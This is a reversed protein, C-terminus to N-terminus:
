RLSKKSTASKKENGEQINSFDLSTPAKMTAMKKVKKPRTTKQPVNTSPSQNMDLTTAGPAKKKKLSKRPSSTQPGDITKANNTENSIRRKKTGLSKKTAPSSEDITSTKLSTKKTTRKKTPLNGSPSSSIGGDMTLATKAAGKGKARRTTKPSPTQTTLLELPALGSNDTTKPGQGRRTAPRRTTKPKNTTLVLEEISMLGNDVSKSRQNRKTTPKTGLKATDSLDVSKGGGGRRGRTKKSPTLGEDATVAGPTGSKKSKKALKGRRKKPTPNVEDLTNTKTAPEVTNARKKGKKCKKGTKKVAPTSDGGANASVEVTAARKGKRGKRLPKKKMAVLEEISALKEEQPEEKISVKDLEPAPPLDQKQPSEQSLYPDMPPNTNTQPVDGIQKADAIMSNINASSTVNNNSEFADPNFAEVDDFGGFANNGGSNNRHRMKVANMNEIIASDDNQQKFVNILASSLTWGAISSFKYSNDDFIARINNSFQGFNDSIIDLIKELAKDLDEVEPASYRANNPMDSIQFMFKELAPLIHFEIREDLFAFEPMKDKMLQFKATNAIMRILKNMTEQHSIDTNQDFSYPNDLAELLYLEFFLRTLYGMVIKKENFCVTAFTRIVNALHSFQASVHAASSLIYKFITSFVKEILQKDMTDPNFDIKGKSNIYRVIKSIVHKFYQRGTKQIVKKALYTIAADENLPNKPDVDPNDFENAALSKLFVIYNGAYTFITYFAELADKQQKIPKGPPILARLISADPTITSSYLAIKLPKPYPLHGKSLYFPFETQHTKGKTSIIAKWFGLHESDEPKFSLVEVDTADYCVVKGDKEDVTITAIFQKALLKLTNEPTIVYICIRFNNDLIAWCKTQTQYTCYSIAIVHNNYKCFKQSWLRPFILRTAWYLFNNPSKVKKIISLWLHSVEEIKPIPKPIIPPWNLAIGTCTIISVNSRALEIMNKIKDHPPQFLTQPTLKDFETIFIKVFENIPIAGDHSIETYKEKEIIPAFEPLYEKFDVVAM